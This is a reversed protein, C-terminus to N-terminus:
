KKLFTVTTATLFIAIFSYTEAISCSTSSATVTGTPSVSNADAPASMVFAEWRYHGGDVEFARWIRGNHVVVPVPACHFRGEALLGTSKTRPNTWTKGGDTSRRIVIDGHKRSTGIIYLQGRHMFLTSWWQGVIETLQRWIKGFDTSCFIRTAPQAVNGFIDHSAVYHGNPLVAISPSGVYRRTQPPSYDIVVGPVSSHDPKGPNEQKSQQCRAVAGTLLFSTVLSCVIKSKMKSGSRVNNKRKNCNRHLRESLRTPTGFPQPL